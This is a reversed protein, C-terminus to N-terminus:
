GFIANKNSDFMQMINGYSQIAEEETLAAAAAADGFTIYRFPRANGVNSWNLVFGSSSVSSLSAEDDVTSSGVTAAATINLYISDTEYRCATIADPVNDVDNVVLCVMESSSTGAGITFMNDSQNSNATGTDVGFIMVAKCDKGTNITQDGTGGPETDNGVAYSGGKIVIYAYDLAGTDDNNIRFGNSLMSVFSFSDLLSGNASSMLAILKTHSYYQWTDMTVRGTESAVSQSWQNGASDAAGIAVGMASQYSANAVVNNCGMVIVLDPQFGPATIDQNGTSASGTFSGVSVNTIDDGGLFLVHFDFAASPADTWNIQMGNSLWSSFSASSDVTNESGSQVPTKILFSSSLERSTASSAVADFSLAGMVMNNTGDTFGIGFTYVPVFTDVANCSRSWWVIAAKPTFTTGTLDQTGTATNATFTLIKKEIAM